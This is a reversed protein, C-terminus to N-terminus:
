PLAGHLEGAVHSFGQREPGRLMRTTVEGLTETDGGPRTNGESEM